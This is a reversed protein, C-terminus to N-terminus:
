PCDSSSASPSIRCDGSPIIVSVLITEAIQLFFQGDTLFQHSGIKDTRDSDGSYSSNASSFLLPHGQWPLPNSSGSVSDTCVTVLQRSVSVNRIRNSFLHSYGSRNNSFRRDTFGSVIRAHLINSTATVNLSIFVSSLLM